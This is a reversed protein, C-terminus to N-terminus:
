ESPIGIGNEDVKPLPHHRKSRSPREERRPSTHGRTDARKPGPLAAQESAPPPVSPSSKPPGVGASSAALENQGSAPAAPRAGVPVPATGMAASPAPVAWPGAAPGANRLFLVAGVGAAGAVLVLIWYLSAAGTRVRRDGVVIDSERDVKTAVAPSPPLKHDRVRIPAAGEETVRRVPIAAGISGDTEIRIAHLPRDKETMTRTSGGRLDSGMGLLDRLERPGARRTASSSAIPSARNPDPETARNGQPVVDPGLVMSEHVKIPKPATTFHKTWRARVEPPAWPLLAEGFEHVSGFRLSPHHNIAREIVSELAEPLEPRHARVGVHDGDLIARLLQLDRLETKTSPEFPRRGGTLASYLVVGLSYQDTAPNASQGRIIEPAFYEPTGIAIGKRTVEASEDLDVRQSDAWAKAIGFDLVKVVETGDYEAIFINTGKLDRHVIGRRHCVSVAACTELFITAVRDIALPGKAILDQLSQGQLLEMVMYPPEGTKADGEAFEKLAVIHPYDIQSIAEAELRFRAMIERDALKDALITKIAVARKLVPDWARYVAGMGGVGIRERIIYKGIRSDRELKM